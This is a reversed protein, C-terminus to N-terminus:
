RYAAGSDVLHRRAASRALRDLLWLSESVEGRELPSRSSSAERLRPRVRELSRRSTLIVQVRRSRLRRALPLLSRQERSLRYVQLSPLQLRQQKSGWGRARAAQSRGEALGAQWASVERVWLATSM